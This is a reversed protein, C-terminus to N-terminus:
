RFLKKREQSHSARQPTKVGSSGWDLCHLTYHLWEVCTWQMWMQAQTCSLSLRCAVSVLHFPATVFYRSESTCHGSGCSTYLLSAFLLSTSIDGSEVEYPCRPPMHGTLMRICLWMKLSSPTLSEQVIHEKHSWYGPGCFLAIRTEPGLFSVHLPRSQM